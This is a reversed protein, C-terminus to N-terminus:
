LRRRKREQLREVIVGQRIKQSGPSSEHANQAEGGPHLNCLSTRLMRHRLDAKSTPEGFLESVELSTCARQGPRVSHRCIGRTDDGTWNRPAPGHRVRISRGDSGRKRHATDCSVSPGGWPATSSRRRASRRAANHVLFSQEDTPNRVLLAKPHTTKPM